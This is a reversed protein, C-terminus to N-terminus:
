RPLRLAPIFMRLTKMGDVFAICHPFGYVLNRMGRREEENPWTIQSFPDADLVHLLAIGVHRIYNSETESSLGFQVALQKLGRSGEVGGRIVNFFFFLMARPNLIRRRERLTQEVEAFQQRVNMPKALEGEVLRFIDDFESMPTGTMEEFVNLDFHWVASIFVENGKGPTRMYTHKFGGVANGKGPKFADDDSAEIQLPSSDETLLMDSTQAADAQVQAYAAVVALAARLQNNDM